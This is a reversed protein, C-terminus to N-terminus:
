TMYEVLRKAQEINMQEKIRREKNAEYAAIAEERTKYYGLHKRRRVYIRWKKAREVFHIGPKSRNILNVQQSVDRLNEIRNDLRDGNIHDIQKDPWKGHHLFWVVRHTYYQKYGLSIKRYGLNKNYYGAENGAVARHNVTKKWYLKGDRYEFFDKFNEMPTILL